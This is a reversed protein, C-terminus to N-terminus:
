TSYLLTDILVSNPLRPCNQYYSSTGTFLASIKLMLKTTFKSNKFYHNSFHKLLHTQTHLLSIRSSLDKVSRQDDSYIEM